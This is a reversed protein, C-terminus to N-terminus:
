IWSSLYAQLFFQPSLIYLAFLTQSYPVRPTFPLYAKFKITYCFGKLYLRHYSAQVVFHYLFSALTCKALYLWSLVNM